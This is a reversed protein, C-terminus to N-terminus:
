RWGGQVSWASIRPTHSIAPNVVYAHDASGRDSQAEDGETVNQSKVSDNEVRTAVARTTEIM